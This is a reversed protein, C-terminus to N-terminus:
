EMRQAVGRALSVAREMQTRGACNNPMMDIFAQQGVRKEICNLWRVADSLCDTMEKVVARDAAAQKNEM